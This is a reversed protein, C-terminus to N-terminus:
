GSVRPLSGAALPVVYNGRGAGLGGGGGGAVLPERSVLAMVASGVGSEEAARSVLLSVGAMHLLAPAITGRGWAGIGQEGVGGNHRRCVNSMPM